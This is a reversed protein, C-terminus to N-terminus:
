EKSGIVCKANSISIQYNEGVYTREEGKEKRCVEIMEEITLMNTSLAEELTITDAMKTVFYIESLKNTYVEYGSNECVYEEERNEDITICPYKSIGYTNYSSHLIEYFMLMGFGMLIIFAMVGLVLYRKKM